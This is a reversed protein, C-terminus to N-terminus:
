NSKLKNKFCKLIFKSHVVFYVNLGIYVIQKHSSVLELKWNKVDFWISIKLNPAKAVYNHKIIFMDNYIEFNQRLGTFVLLYFVRIHPPPILDKKTILHLNIMINSLRAFTTNRNLLFLLCVANLDFRKPYKKIMEHWSKITMTM